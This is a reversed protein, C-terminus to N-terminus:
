REKVFEGLEKSAQIGAKMNQMLVEFGGNDEGQGHFCYYLEVASSERGEMLNEMVYDWQVGLGGRRFDCSLGEM